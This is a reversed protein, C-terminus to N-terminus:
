PDPHPVPGRRWSRANCTRKRDPRRARGRRRVEGWSERPRGAADLHQRPRHKCLLPLASPALSPWLAHEWSRAAWPARAGVAPHCTPCTGPALELSSTSVTPGLPRVFSVCVHGLFADGLMQGLSEPGINALMSWLEAWEPDLKGLNPCNNGLNPRVRGWDLLSQGVDTM